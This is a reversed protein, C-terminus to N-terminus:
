FEGDHPLDRGWQLGTAPAPKSQGTCARRLAFNRPMERMPRLNSKRLQVTEPQLGTVQEVEVCYLLDGRGPLSKGPEPPLAPPWPPSHEWARAGTSRMAPGCVPLMM